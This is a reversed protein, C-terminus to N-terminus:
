LFLFIKFTPFIIENTFKMVDNKPEIISSRNRSNKFLINEIQEIRTKWQDNKLVPCWARHSAIPDFVLHNMKIPIERCCKDCILSSNNFKWCFALIKFASLLRPDNLHSSSLLDFDTPEVHFM